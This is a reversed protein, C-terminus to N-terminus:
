TYAFLNLQKCIIKPIQLYIYGHIVDPSQLSDSLVTTNSGTLKPAITLSHLILIKETAKDIHLFTHTGAFLNLISKRSLINNYRQLQYKM